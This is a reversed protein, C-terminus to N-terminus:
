NIKQSHRVAPPLKTGQGPIAGTTSDPTGVAPHWALEWAKPSENEGPYKTLADNRDM